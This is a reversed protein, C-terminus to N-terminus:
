CMPLPADLNAYSVIQASWDSAEVAPRDMTLKDYSVDPAVSAEEEQQVLRSHLMSQSSADAQDAESSPPPEELREQLPVQSPLM